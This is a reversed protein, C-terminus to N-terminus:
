EARESAGMAEVMSYIMVRDHPPHKDTAGPAALRVQVRDTRATPINKGVYNPRIPVARHGRDILVALKVSAPRGHRWLTTMARQVTWGSNIVDDVIVITRAEVAFAEGGDLAVVVGAPNYVDLAATPPRVGSRSAILDRMRIALMAGHSVVGLISVNTLDPTDAIVQAALSDVANSIEAANMVERQPGRKYPEYGNEEAQKVSDFVALSGEAIWQRVYGYLNEDYRYYRHSRVHGVFEVRLERECFDCRLPLVNRDAPRALKFRPRLYAVEFRTICNPNACRPSPEAKIRIPETAAAQTRRQAGSQEILWAILAMRVPVGAAAQEFYVARPDADLEYALEGARPLPHMVVAEQARHGKLARADFRVYDGPKADKGAMREKQLRTIYFADLSIPPEVAPIKDLPVEGTFLAMQHPMIPTLYLADLGGAVSKLEDMTVSSFSYNREAALRELVYDPVEMGATPVAVINAGFRALAYILSHVTRGFKLDGCLAVTLGKLRGKKRRLIYLDCLTQTPHERSGDGANIVPCPAYEAAVLAAGDHPHRLVLLDAYGSVIRATDALSEGKAVSSANMDASSIVAGGLRHMASEFSLRTRTSPEYFLTAMILGSALSLPEGRELASAFGDALTFIREIEPLALDEISVLDIKALKSM